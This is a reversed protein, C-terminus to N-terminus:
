RFVVEFRALVILAILTVAALIGVTILSYRSGVAPELRLLALAVESMIEPSDDGSSATSQTDSGTAPTVVLADLLPSPDHLRPLQIPRGHHTVLVTATDLRKDLPDYEIEV